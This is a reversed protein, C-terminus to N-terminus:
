GYVTTAATAWKDACPHIMKSIVLLQIKTHQGSFNANAAIPENASIKESHAGCSGKLLALLVQLAVQLVDQAAQSCVATSTVLQSCVAPSVSFADPQPALVKYVNKLSVM